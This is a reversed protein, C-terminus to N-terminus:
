RSPRGPRHHLPQNERAPHITLERILRGDKFVHARTGTIIITARAQNHEVGLTIRYPGAWVVGDYVLNRFLTTPRGLPADAPGSKPTTDWVDAPTRRELSRHPRQHNYLDVFRDLLAQLEPITDAPPQAELWRKETQQFREAKGCTQPHYPRSHRLGVGLLRLNEEFAVGFYRGNDTLVREPWGYRDAADTITDWVGALTATPVALARLAVRSCDDLCNIIEVETGDALPWHTADMQWCENVREAAFSRWKRAPAKSPDPTVFGRRTLVRWITAESCLVSGPPLRQVLWYSITAPGADLGADDLEKRLEVILDEVEVPTRNAVRRPARSRSELGAEGELAYRRRWAYFSERSIGHDRCFGAVNLSAVDAEVVARRVSM